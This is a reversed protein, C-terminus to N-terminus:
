KGSVAGARDDSWPDVFNRVVGIRYGLARLVLNTTDMQVTKKNNELQYVFNLGVGARDALQKQTLGLRKREGRVFEGIEM